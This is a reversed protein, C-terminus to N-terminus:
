ELVVLPQGFEVPQSDDVLISSVKGSRPAPIPNMVKMAEIILLTQGEEVSDGPKVFVPAGPQPSLYVTGVMPSPVAGPHDAAHDDGSVAATVPAGAAPAPAYQMPAAVPAARSVRLSVDGHEYEVETLGKDIMLDALQGVLDTDLSLKPM